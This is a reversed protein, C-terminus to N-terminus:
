RSAGDSGPMVGILRAATAALAAPSTAPGSVGLDQLTQAGVVLTLLLAGLEAPPLDARVVRRGQADAVQGALRGLCEAFLTLYRERLLPSRACAQYLQHPRVGGPAALPYTGSAFAQVFRRVTEELAVGGMVADLFAHGVRDMVAVLIEDRDRFHVYFAGRTKGARACIADLSPADLGEDAFLMTAAEILAERTRAKAAQRM